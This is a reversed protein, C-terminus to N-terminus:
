VLSSALQDIDVAWEDRMARRVINVNQNHMITFLWARLDTGTQWLHEKAIAGCCHKKCSITPETSAGHSLGPMAGFGHFRESWSVTFNPCESRRQAGLDRPTM